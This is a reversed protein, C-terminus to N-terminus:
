WKYLFRDAYLGFLISILLAGAVNLFVICAPHCVISCFRFCGKRRMEVPFRQHEEELVDLLPEDNDENLASYSM